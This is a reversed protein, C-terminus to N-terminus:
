PRPCGPFSTVANVRRVSVSLITEHSYIDRQRIFDPHRAASLPQAPSEREGLSRQRIGRPQGQLVLGAPDQRESRFRQCSPGVAGQLPHQKLKRYVKVAIPPLVIRQRPRLVGPFGIRAGPDRNRFCLRSDLDVVANQSKYKRSGSLREQDPAAPFVPRTDPRDACLDFVFGADYVRAPELSFGANLPGGALHQDHAPLARVTVLGTSLQKREHEPHRYERAGLVQLHLVLEDVILGVPVNRFPPFQGLTDTGRAHVQFTRTQPLQTRHPKDHFVGDAAGVFECGTWDGRNPVLAQDRRGPRNPAQQGLGRTRGHVVGHDVGVHVVAFRLDAPRM